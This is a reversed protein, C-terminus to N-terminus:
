TGRRSTLLRLSSDSLQLYRALYLLEFEVFVMAMLVRLSAKSAITAM